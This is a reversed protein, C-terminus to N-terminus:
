LEAKVTPLTDDGAEAKVEAEAGNTASDAEGEAERVKQTGAQAKASEKAAQVKAARRREVAEDFAERYSPTGGESTPSGEDDTDAPSGQNDTDAALDDDQKETDEGSTTPRCKGREIASHMADTIPTWGLSTLIQDDVCDFMEKMLDDTCKPDKGKLPIRYAPIQALNCVGDGPAGPGRNCMVRLDQMQRPVDTGFMEGLDPDDACGMMSQICENTCLMKINDSVDEPVPHEECSKTLKGLDCLSDDDDAAAGAEAEAALEEEAEQAVQAGVRAHLLALIVTTRLHITALVM